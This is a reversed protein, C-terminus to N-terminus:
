TKRAKTLVEEQYKKLEAHEDIHSMTIGSAENIVSKLHGAPDTTTLHVKRGRKSLGLAIAAAVTTKGVGGKGMTFIVKKNTHYLDDIVDELHPITKARVKEDHDRYQDQTLFVRV